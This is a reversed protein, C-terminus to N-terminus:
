PKVAEMFLSDPKRAGEGVADLQYTNFNAIRSESATCVRIDAYKSNQLLRKLSYRDYM